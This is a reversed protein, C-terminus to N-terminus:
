QECNSLGAAKFIGEVNIAESKNIYRAIAMAAKEGGLQGNCRFRNFSVGGGAIYVLTVDLAAEFKISISERQVVYQKEFAVMESYADSAFALTALMVLVCYVPTTRTRQTM